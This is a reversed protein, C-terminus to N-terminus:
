RDGDRAARRRNGLADAVAPHLQRVLDEPRDAHRGGRGPQHIARSRGPAHGAPGDFPARILKQAIIANTKAIGANAQDLQMQSQDVVAQSEFQRAALSQARKLTVTAWRAQAQYNALDGEDPADNLQVLPEGTKVEAGGTFMIGTILGGIEPMVTVQHVAQLSGIGPAFNPVAGTTAVVASIQAPPPKNNAFFQAIANARFRNFGYLGGLVIAILLGAIVFWRIPRVPKTPPAAARALPEVTATNLDGDM